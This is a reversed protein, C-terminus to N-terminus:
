DEFLWAILVGLAIISGIISSFFLGVLYSGLMGLNTPIIFELLMCVVPLVQSLVIFGIGRKILRM